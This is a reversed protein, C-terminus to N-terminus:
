EGTEKVSGRRLNLIRCLGAISRIVAYPKIITKKKKNRPNFWIGKIDANHSGGIDKELDDGVFLADEPQVNLRQLALEFIRQGPKRTGEEESIIVVDFVLDLNTSKIKAKQRTTSGNTIIAIQVHHKLNMITNMTAADISFCHPFHHDWFLQIENDPVRYKPPFEKFFPALIRSKNNNGYSSKDLDRFRYLMEDRASHSIDEYWEYLNKLFLKHVAMDRDLLTDDLDFLVAKYGNL